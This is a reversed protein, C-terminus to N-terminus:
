SGATRHMSPPVRVASGTVGKDQVALTQAQQRPTSRLPSTTQMVDAAAQLQPQQPPPAVAALRRRVAGVVHARYKSPDAGVAASASEVETRLAAIMPLLTTHASGSAAACSASWALAAASSTTTAAPPVSRSPSLGSKPSAPKQPSADGSSTPAGLPSRSRNKLIPSRSRSVLFAADKHSPEKLKRPSEQLKDDFRVRRQHPPISTPTSRCRERPSRPSSGRRPTGPDSRPSLPRMSRTPSDTESRQRRRMERNSLPTGFPNDGSGAADRKATPGHAGPSGPGNVNRVARPAPLMTVVKGDAPLESASATKEASLEAPDVCRTNSQAPGMGPFKQILSKLEAAERLAEDLAAAEADRQEMMLAVRQELKEKEGQLMALENEGELEAQAATKAEIRLIGLESDLRKSEARLSAVLEARSARKPLTASSSSSCLSTCDSPAVTTPMATDVAAEGDKRHRRSPVCQLELKLDAAASQLRRTAALSRAAWQDLSYDLGNVVGATATKSPGDSAPPNAM